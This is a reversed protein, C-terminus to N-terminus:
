RRQGSDVTPLLLTMTASQRVRGAREGAEDGSGFFLDGRAPGVIASGTDQAIMLRRFHIAAAGRPADPDPIGAADVWVPTHFTMLNRDVALSRGGTLPVGAAGIPGEEPTIQPTQKFFIYSRNQRMLDRGDLPNQRLWTELGAKDATAVSLYGREIALQGLRPDDSLIELYGGHLMRDLEVAPAAPYWVNMLIPRPARREVSYRAGDSFTTDYTRAPDFAWASRFGVSHPGPELDGWLDQAAASGALLLAGLAARGDIM